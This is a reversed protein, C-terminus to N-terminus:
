DGRWDDDYLDAIHDYDEVREWGPDDEDDDEVEPYGHGADYEGPEYEPEEATLEDGWEEPLNDAYVPETM